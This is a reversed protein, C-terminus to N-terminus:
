IAYHYCKHRISSLSRSSAVLVVGTMLCTKSLLAMTSQQTTSMAAFLAYTSAKEARRIM